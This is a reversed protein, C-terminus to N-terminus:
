MVIVSHTSLHHCIRCVKGSNDPRPSIRWILESGPIVQVTEAEPPPMEDPEEDANNSQIDAVNTCCMVNSM